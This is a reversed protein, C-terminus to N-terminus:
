QQQEQFKNLGPYSIQIAYKHNELLQFDNISSIKLAFFVWNRAPQECCLRQEEHEKSRGSSDDHPMRPEKRSLSSFSYSRCRPLSLRFNNLSMSDLNCHPPDHKTNSLIPHEQSIHNAM